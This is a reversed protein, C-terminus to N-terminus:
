NRINCESFCHKIEQQLKVLEDTSYLKSDKYKNDLMKETKVIPQIVFERVGEIQRALVRVDDLTALDRVVTTAIRYDIGSEMLLKVSERIRNLDEDTMKVGTALQYNIISLQTKVDMSVFSVLEEEVLYKLMEPNTGNTYLGVEFGADKIKKIFEPLDKHITPEGGTVVVADLKGRRLKLFDFFESERLSRGQARDFPASVGRLRPSPPGVLEPNYCFGCRFNCGQTYVIASVKGPYDTLSTKQLGGIIM